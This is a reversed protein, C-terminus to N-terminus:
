DEGERQSLAHNVADRVRQERDRKTVFFVVLGSLLPALASVLLLAGVLKSLEGEVGEMRAHLALLESTYETRPLLTAAQDKLQGRFENVSEFRKDASIEAKMVAEKASALAAATAKENAAFAAQIAKENAAFAAAVAVAQDSFRQNVLDTLGKFMDMYRRDREEAFKDM